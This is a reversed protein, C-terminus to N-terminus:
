LVLIENEIIDKLKMIEPMLDNLVAKDDASLEPIDKNKLLINGENDIKFAIQHYSISEEPSLENLFIYYAPRGNETLYANIYYYYLKDSLSTKLPISCEMDSTADLVIGFHLDDPEPKTYRLMCKYTGDDYKVYRIDKDRSYSTKEDINNKELFGIYYKDYFELWREHKKIGYIIFITTVTIIVAAFAIAATKFSIKKVSKESIKLM